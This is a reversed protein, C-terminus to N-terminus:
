PKNVYRRYISNILCINKKYIKKENLINSYWTTLDQFDFHYIENNDNVDVWRFSHYPNNMHIDRLQRIVTVQIDSLNIIEQM